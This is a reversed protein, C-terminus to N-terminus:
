LNFKLIGLAECCFRTKFFFELFFLFFICPRLKILKIFFISYINWFMLYIHIIVADRAKREDSYKNDNQKSVYKKEEEGNKKKM